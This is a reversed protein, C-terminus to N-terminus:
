EVAAHGPGPGAGLRPPKLLLVLPACFFILLLMLRFDNVYATMMAQRRIEADLVLAGTLTSPDFAPPLTARLVADGPIVRGALQEHMVQSNAAALAQMMSIGASSGINRVLNYISSAEARLAPSVTAFALTTLPVFFLGVAFGQLFGSTILPWADMSLDFRGMQWAAWGSFALGALLMLRLDIHKSLRGAMLISIMMGVGRPMSVLGATWASYGMLSQMLLPLIALSGFILTGTLFSFSTAAVLNRDRILALDFFPHSATLSHVVFVWLGIGAVIAYTWIEAASFWDAGPGRDLMLQFSGIAIALASFGLFDFPRRRSEDKRGMFMWVGLLTVIGIPLNIYFCWRWSFTDTLYGGLVPGFIPGLITGMAWITMAHAHREPPNINLLVAQSLPVLAAGFLGQLVRFAVIQPLSTAAGCLMSAVTFGTIVVLFTRKMGLRGALWGSMPTMVAAAVIYSTLVWTIQDPAASLSGQIHPLAVNAITSDLTNMLTALMISFTIPGRNAVAETM